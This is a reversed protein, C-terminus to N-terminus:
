NLNYHHLFLMFITGVINVRDTGPHILLYQKLSGNEMFESIIGPLPSSRVFGLLPLIFRHRLNSAKSWTRIEGECKQLTGHILMFKFTILHVCRCFCRMFDLM